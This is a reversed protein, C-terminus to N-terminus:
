SKNVQVVNKKRSHFLLLDFDDLDGIIDHTTPRYFQMLPYLVIGLLELNGLVLEHQLVENWFEVEGRVPWATMCLVREVVLGADSAGMSLIDLGSPSM